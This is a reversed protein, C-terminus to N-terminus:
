HWGKLIEVFGSGVVRSCDLGSMVKEYIPEQWSPMELTGVLTLVTAPGVQRVSFTLTMM